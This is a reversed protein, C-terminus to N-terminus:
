APQYPIRIRSFHSRVAAAFKLELQLPAGIQDGGDQAIGQDELDEGQEEEDVGGVVEVAEEGAGHARGAGEVHVAVAIRDQDQLDDVEQQRPDPEDDVM